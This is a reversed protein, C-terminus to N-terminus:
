GDVAGDPKAGGSRPKGHAAALEKSFDAPDYGHSRLYLRCDIIAAAIRKEVASVSVNQRTAIQKYKLGDVRRLILARRSEPALSALAQSVIFLKQRADVTAEPSEGAENEHIAETGSDEFSQGMVVSKKQAAQLALNKAIRLLLHEPRRIETELEAAFGKLFTEQTLEEVDAPNARYRRVIRRIAGEQKQFAKYIRSM